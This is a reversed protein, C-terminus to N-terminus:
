LWANTVQCRSFDLIKPYDIGTVQYLPSRARTPVVKLHLRGAALQPTDMPNLRTGQTGWSIQHDFGPTGSEDGNLGQPERARESRPLGSPIFGLPILSNAFGVSTQRRLSIGNVHPSADPLFGPVQKRIVSLIRHASCITCVRSERTFKRLRGQVQIQAPFAKAKEPPKLQRGCGWSLHPIASDLSPNVSSPSAWIRRSWISPVAARNASSLASRLACSARHRALM